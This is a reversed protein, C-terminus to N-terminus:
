AILKALDEVTECFFEPNLELLVEKRGFGYGAACSSVGAAKAALIDNRGDGVMLAKAKSVGTERLVREIMDPSPKPSLSGDGCLVVDFCSSVNLGKLIKHTYISAKNTAVARKKTALADLLTGIGPYLVTTDLLHEGYWQRFMEVAEGLRHAHTEPLAREVLKVMGDGILQRVHDPNKPHLRLCTLTYNVASVLDQDSRILTGDLDFVFLDFASMIM